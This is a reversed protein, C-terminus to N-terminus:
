ALAPYTFLVFHVVNLGFHALIPAEIRRTRAYAIAYGLGALTALVVLVPGGGAHALGFLLASLIVAVAARLGSKVSQGMLKEQLFGRFFAEEAVCTFFLNVVLFIPLYPLLKPAFAVHDAALAMGMVMVVTVAAVPLMRKFSARLSAWSRSRRCLFVLLILGVAGKDFNAYQTFPVADSTFRTGATLVPNHFGPVAHLALALALLATMIGFCFAQRKGADDRGTLYATLVLAGLAIPAQWDLLGAMLGAIIAASFLVAWPALRFSGLRLPDLWATCVALALLTFPLIM